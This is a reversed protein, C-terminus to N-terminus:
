CHIHQRENTSTFAQSGRILMKDHCILSPLYKIGIDKGDTFFGIGIKRGTNFQGEDDTITIAGAFAFRTFGNSSFAAREISLFEDIFTSM